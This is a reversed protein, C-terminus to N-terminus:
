VESYGLLKALGQMSADSLNKDVYEEIIRQMNRNTLTNTRPKLRSLTTLVEERVPISPAAGERSVAIAAACSALELAMKIPSGKVLEAVFYGTFTDGAATTDVATIRM